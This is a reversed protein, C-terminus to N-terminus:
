EEFRFQMEDESESDEDRRIVMTRQKKAKGVRTSPASRKATSAPSPGNKEQRRTTRPADVNIVERQGGQTLSPPVAAEHEEGGEGEGDEAEDDRTQNSRASIFTQRPSPAAGDDDEDDDDEEFEKEKRRRPKAKSRAAFSTGFSSPRPPGAIGAAELPVIVTQDRRAPVEGQRRFRKFNKRGNWREDWRAGRGKETSSIGNPRPRVDVKEVVALRQMEEVSMNAISEHLLTADRAAAEDEARRREAVVEKIDINAKKKRAAAKAPPPAPSKSKQTTAGPEISKGRRRAEAEDEIRRRKMAAAAPLLADNADAVDEDDPTCRKRTRPAPTGNADEGDTDVAMADANTGNVSPTLIEPNRRTRSRSRSAVREAATRAPDYGDDFGKFASVVLARPRGRRTAPQQPQEKPTPM